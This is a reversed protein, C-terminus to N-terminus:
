GARAQELSGSEVDRLAAAAQYAAATEKADNHQASDMARRTLEVQASIEPVSGVPSDNFLLM